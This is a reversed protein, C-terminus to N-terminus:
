PWKALGLKSAVVEVPVSGSNSALMVEVDAVSVGM